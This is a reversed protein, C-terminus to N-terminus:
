SRLPHENLRSFAQMREDDSATQAPSWQYVFYGSMRSRSWRDFQEELEESNPLRYWDTEFSQVVAWYRDVGASAAEAIARDIMEFWCEDSKNLCPYVVLGMIDTTQAFNEYPFGQAGDWTPVTVYTPVGPDLSGVLEARESIQRPSQPCMNHNPEDAVQYAVIADHDAIRELSDRVWDDDREFSCSSNRYAGLWVVGGLGEDHLQDLKAVDPVVTVTDFGVSSIHELGNESSDRGYVGRVLDAETHPRDPASDDRAPGGAEQSPRMLQFAALAGLLLLAVATALIKINHTSSAPM